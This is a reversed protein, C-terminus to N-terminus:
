NGPHREAMFQSDINRKQLEHRVQVKPIWKDRLRLKGDEGMYFPSESRLNFNWDSLMGLLNQCTSM